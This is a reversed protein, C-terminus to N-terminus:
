KGIVSQLNAIAMQKDSRAKELQLSYNLYKSQMNLLEEFTKSGSMYETESIKLSTLSLEKQRKFLEIRRKSDSYNKYGTEILNVVMNNQNQKQMNKATESYIAEKVMSKYKKRYLPITIGIKPFILADNGSLNMAGKGVSIYDVGISFSPMGQKKAVEIKSKLAESQYNLQNVKHNNTSASDLLEAKSLNIDDEWLETILEIDFGSEVNLLNRFAVKKVEIEDNLLFLKNEMDGIMMDIRLQDVASTTGAKVKINAMEKFSHLFQINEKTITSSKNLYYLSYYNTRVESFLNSKEDLFKEYNAKAMAEASSGKAKLTGFWPFMQSGGVVFQQPGNRTEIPKTFYAFAVVPDPLSKVQPIQELSAMYENFASKLKPNNEAAIKLYGNLEEQAFGNISISIIILLLIYLTKRM